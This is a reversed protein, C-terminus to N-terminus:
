EVEFIELDGLMGIKKSNNWFDRSHLSAMGRYYYIAARGKRMELHHNCGLKYIGIHQRPIAVDGFTTLVQIHDHYVLIKKLMANALMEYEGKSLGDGKFKMMLKVWDFQSTDKNLIMELRNKEKSLEDMKMKLEKMASEYVAEDMLSSMWLETLKGNKRKIETLQLDIESLRKREETDNQATKMVKMAEALLLPKVMQILGNGQKIDDSITINNRCSERKDVLHNQCTYFQKRSPSPFHANMRGGCYGCRIFSSLPLWHKKQRPSSLKRLEVKKNATMWVDVPIIEKGEIQKAKILEGDSNRMYGCYLPYQLMNRIMTRSCRHPFMQPYKENMKKVISHISAANNFLTFVEKVMKAEEVDIIIEHKKGTQKFGHMRQIGIQVEGSDKLKKLAAKCKETQNRLQENNIRNQLALILNDNFNSFDIIGNSVTWIKIQHAVLLQHIYSELFSGTFPRYLRTIDYVIIYDVEDLRKVVEGLGDRYKKKSTQSAFWQNFALDMEAISESGTPYTKGSTNNDFCIKVVDLHEKAALLKCKEIQLEVSESVDDDGSSQRAYIMSKM